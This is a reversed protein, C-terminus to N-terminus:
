PLRARFAYLRGEVSPEDRRRALGVLTRGDSSVDYVRDILWVPDLAGAEALVDELLRFGNAADWVGARRSDGAANGFARSGDDSVVEASSGAEGIVEVGASTWRLARVPDFSYGVIVSGDASAAFAIAGPAGDPLPLVREQGDASWAKPTSVQLQGNGSGVVVTGDASVGYAVGGFPSPTLAVFGGGASWRFPQSPGEVNGFAGVVVNLDSTFAFVSVHNPAALPAEIRQDRPVGADPHRIFARSFGAADQDTWLLRSDDDAIASELVPVDALVQDIGTSLWRIAQQTVSQQTARCAGLVRAGDASIQRAYCDRAGLPFPLTQFVAPACAELADAPCACSQGSPEFCFSAESCAQPSCAPDGPEVPGSGARGGGGVGGVGGAGGGGAGAVSPYGASGPQGASSGASGGAGSSGGVSPLEDGTDGCAGTGSVLLVAAGVWRVLTVETQM